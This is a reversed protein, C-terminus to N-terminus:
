QPPQAASEPEDDGSMWDSVKDGGAQLDEGFGEITNCGALAVIFGAAALWALWYGRLSM